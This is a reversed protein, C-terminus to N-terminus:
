QSKKKIKTTDLTEQKAEKELIDKDIEKCIEIFEWLVEGVSKTSQRPTRVDIQKKM